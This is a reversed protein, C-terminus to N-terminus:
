VGTIGRVWKFRGARKEELTWEAELEPGELAFSAGRAPSVKGTCGGALGPEDSIM